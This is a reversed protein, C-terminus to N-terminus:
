QLSGKHLMQQFFGPPLLDFCSCRTREQSSLLSTIFTRLLRPAARLGAAAPHLMKLQGAVGGRASLGM